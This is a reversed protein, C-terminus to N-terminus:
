DGYYVRMWWHFLKSSHGLTPLYLVVVLCFTMVLTFPWTVVRLFMLFCYPIEKLTSIFNEDMLRAM